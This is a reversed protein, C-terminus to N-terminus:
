PMKPFKKLLKKLLKFLGCLLLDDDELDTDDVKVDVADVAAAADRVDACNSIEVVVLVSTISDVTM